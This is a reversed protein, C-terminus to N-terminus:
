RGASTQPHGKPKSRAVHDFLRGDIDYAKLDLTDGYVSVLCYHHARRLKATFWSRNPSVRELYGGGGGTQVYTVGRAEDVRGERLPWTREYCHAHGYFVLDVDHREFVPILDRVRVDGSAACELHAKGYDDLDSTWVPHHFACVKWRATSDALAADLWRHQESGKTCDRNSDLLFLEVDGWRARYRHEPAPNAMYRYYHDADEEHNGLVAFVPVHALLTRAPEFYEHVWEAHTPGHGVIDGVHLVFSPREGWIRDAVRRWKSPQDQTDGVVAFAFPSDPEPATCFSYVPTRVTRRFRDVHEVQYFCRTGPALGTIRVEHLRKPTALEIEHELPTRPGYRLRARTPGDTEWLVTAATTTVHQVYPAVLRDSPLGSVDIGLSLSCLALLTTWRPRLRVFTVRRTRPM